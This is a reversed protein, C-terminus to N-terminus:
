FGHANIDVGETDPWPLGPKITENKVAAGTNTTCCVVGCVLAFIVGSSAISRLHKILM